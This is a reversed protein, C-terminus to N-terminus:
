RRDISWRGAGHAVLTLLGGAIALNKMFHITQNQDAFNSHFLAGSVLTFGALVFAVLRTQWGIAVLVGGIVEVASVLPLFVGPVGTKQMYEVTGAYGTIKGIGAVIFIVALLIRGVLAAASSLTDNGM